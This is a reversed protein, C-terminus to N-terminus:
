KSLKNIIKSINKSLYYLALADNNSSMRRDLQSVTEPGVLHQNELRNEHSNERPPLLSSLVLLACLSHLLLLLYQLSKDRSVWGGPNRGSSYWSFPQWLLTNKHFM